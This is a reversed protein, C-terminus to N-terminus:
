GENARSEESLDCEFESAVPQGECEDGARGPKAKVQLKVWDVDFEEKVWESLMKRLIKASQVTTGCYVGGFM